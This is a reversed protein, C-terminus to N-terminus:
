CARGAQMGHVGLKQLQISNAAGNSKNESQRSPAPHPVECLCSRVFNAHVISAPEARPMLSVAISSSSSSVNSGRM